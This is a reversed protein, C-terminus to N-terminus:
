NEKLGMKEDRFIRADMRKFDPSILPKKPMHAFIDRELDIGPAAECLMIGDKTLRFVARETIYM